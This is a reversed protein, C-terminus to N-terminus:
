HVYIRGSHDQSVTTGTSLRGMKLEEVRVQPLYEERGRSGLDRDTHKLRVAALHAKHTLFSGINSM